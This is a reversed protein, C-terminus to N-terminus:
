NMASAPKSRMVLDMLKNNEGVRDQLSCPIFGQKEAEERFEKLNILNDNSVSLATMGNKLTYNFNVGEKLCNKILSLALDKQKTVQYCMILEIFYNNKLDEAFAEYTDELKEELDNIIKYFENPEFNFNLLTFTFIKIIEIKSMNKEFIFQYLNLFREFNTMEGSSMNETIVKSLIAQYHIDLVEIKHNLEQPTDIKKILKYKDNLNKLAANINSNDPHSESLKKLTSFCFKLHQTSRDALKAIILLKKNIDNSFKKQALEAIKKQFEDLNKNFRAKTFPKECAPCILTSNQYCATIKEYSFSKGCGCDTFWPNSIEKNLSIINKYFTQRPDEIVSFILEENNALDFWPFKKVEPKSLFLPTRGRKCSYHFNGGHILFTKLISEMVPTFKTLVLCHLVTVNDDTKVNLINSTKIYEDLEGLAQMEIVKWFLKALEEKEITIHPIVPKEPIPFTDVTKVSPSPSLKPQKSAEFINNEIKRKVPVSQSPACSTLILDMPDRSFNVSSTM